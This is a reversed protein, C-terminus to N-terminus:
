IHIKASKGTDRENETVKAIATIDLVAKARQVEALQAMQMIASEPLDLTLRIGGDVMTQVKYVIAWFTIESMTQVGNNADRGQVCGSYM